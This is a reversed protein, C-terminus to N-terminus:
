GWNKFEFEKEMITKKINAEITQSDGRDMACGFCLMVNIRIKNDIKIYISECREGENDCYICKKM